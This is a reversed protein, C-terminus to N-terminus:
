TVVEGTAPNFAPVPVDSALAAVVAEATARGVGPVEMVEEVTAARLRKVRAGPVQALTRAPECM